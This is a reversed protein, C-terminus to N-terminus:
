PAQLGLKSTFHKAKTSPLPKTLTDVLMDETPCFILHVSGNDIIWQIFHFHINIHNTHAHYQHDKALAIVSKNDSLLTTPALELGFVERTFSCLWLAEKAAQTAAIYEGETTSLVIIEQQKSNWLVAGGDILGRKVAVGRTSIQHVCESLLYWQPKASATDGLYVLCDSGMAVVDLRCGFSMQVADVHLLWGCDCDCNCGGRMWV